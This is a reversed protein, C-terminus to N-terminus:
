PCLGGPPARTSPADFPLGSRLVPCEAVAFLFLLLPSVVFRLVLAVICVVICDMYVVVVVAPTHLSVSLMLSVTFLTSVVGRGWQRLVTNAEHMGVYEADLPMGTAPDVVVAAVVAKGTKGHMKRPYRLNAMLAAEAEFTGGLREDTYGQPVDEDKGGGLKAM